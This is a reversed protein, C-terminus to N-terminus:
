SIYIVVPVYIIEIIYVEPLLCILFRKFGFVTMFKALAKFVKSCSRKNHSKM